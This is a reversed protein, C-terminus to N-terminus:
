QKEPNRQPTTSSPTASRLSHEGQDQPQRAPQREQQDQGAAAVLQRAEPAVQPRPQDAAPLFPEGGLDGPLGDLPDLEAILCRGDALDELVRGPARSRRGQADRARARGDTGAPFAGIGPPRGGTSPTPAYPSKRSELPWSRESITESSWGGFGGQRGVDGESEQLSQGEGHDLPQFPQGADRSRRPRSGSAVDASGIASPGRDGQGDRRGRGCVRRSFPGRSAPGPPSVRRRGVRARLRTVPSSWRM